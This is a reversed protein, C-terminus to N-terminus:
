RVKSSKRLLSAASISRLIPVKSAMKKPSCSPSLSPILRAWARATGGASWCNEFIRQSMEGCKRTFSWLTKSFKSLYKWGIINKVRESYSLYTSTKKRLTKAGLRIKYQNKPTKKWLPTFVKEGSPLSNWTSYAMSAIFTLIQFSESSVIVPASLHQLYNVINMIWILTCHPWVGFRSKFCTHQHLAQPLGYFSYICMHLVNSLNWSTGIM